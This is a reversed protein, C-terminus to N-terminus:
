VLRRVVKVVGLDAGPVPLRNYRKNDNKYHEDIRNALYALGCGYKRSDSAIPPLRKSAHAQKAKALSEIGMISFQVQMEPLHVNSETSINNGTTLEASECLSQDLIVPDDYDVPDAAQSDSDDDSRFVGSIESRVAESLTEIFEQFIGM